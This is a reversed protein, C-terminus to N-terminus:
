LSNIEGAFFFFFFLLFFFSTHLCKVSKRRAVSKEQLLGTANRTLSSFQAMCISASMIMTKRRRLECLVGIKWEMYDVSYFTQQKKLTKQKKELYYIFIVIM